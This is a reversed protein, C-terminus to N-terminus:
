VAPVVTHLMTHTPEVRGTQRGTQRHMRGIQRGTQRGILRGTEYLVVYQVVSSGRLFCGRARLRNSRRVCRAPWLRIRSWTSCIGVVSVRLLSVPRRVSPRRVSPPTCTHLRRCCCSRADTHPSRPRAWNPAAHRQEHPAPRRTLVEVRPAQSVDVAQSARGFGPYYRTEPVRIEVSRRRVQASRVVSRRQSQWTSQRSVSGAAVRSLGDCLTGCTRSSSSCAQAASPRSHASDLRCRVRSPSGM